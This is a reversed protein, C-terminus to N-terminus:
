GVIIQFVKRRSKAGRMLRIKSKPAGTAKSLLKTVAATAKGDEPVTTVYARINSGDLTIRNCSAKPTVVVEFPKGKQALYSLDINNVQNLGL